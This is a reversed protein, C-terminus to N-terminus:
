PDLLAFIVWLCLFFKTFKMKKLAPHERKLASPKEQLKAHSTTPTRTSARRHAYTVFFTNNNLALVPYLCTYPSLIPATNHIRIRIPDPTLPTGPDTDLDLLAFIVWLCLFFFFFNMKQLAPHEIKLTSPKEQLKFM